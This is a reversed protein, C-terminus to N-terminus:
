ILRVHRREAAAVLRRREEWAAAAVVGEGVVLRKLGRCAGEEGAELLRV